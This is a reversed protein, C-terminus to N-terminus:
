SLQGAEFVDDRRPPFDNDPRPPKVRLAALLIGTVFLSLFFWILFAIM